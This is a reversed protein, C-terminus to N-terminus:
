LETRKADIGVRVATEKSHRISQSHRRFGVLWCCPQFCVLRGCCVLRLYSLLCTHTFIYTVSSSLHLIQSHDFILVAPFSCYGWFFDNKRRDLEPCLPCSARVRPYNPWEGSDNSIKDMFPSLIQNVKDTEDVWKNLVSDQFKSLTCALELVDQLQSCTILLQHYREKSKQSNERWYPVNGNWSDHYVADM